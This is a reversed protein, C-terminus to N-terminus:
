AYGLRIAKIAEQIGDQNKYYYRYRCRVKITDGCFDDIFWHFEDWTWRWHHWEASGMQM